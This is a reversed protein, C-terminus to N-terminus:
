YEGECNGPQAICKVVDVSHFYCARRLVTGRREAYIQKDTEEKTFCKLWDAVFESSNHFTATELDTDVIADGVATENENNPDSM